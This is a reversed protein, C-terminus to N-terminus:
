LANLAALASPGNSPPIAMAAPQPQVEVPQTPHASASAPRKTQAIESQIPSSSLCSVNGFIDASRAQVERLATAWPGSGLARACRPRISRRVPTPHKLAQHAERQGPLEDAARHATARRLGLLRCPAM